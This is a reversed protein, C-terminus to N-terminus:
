MELKTSFVQIACATVLLEDTNINHDIEAFGPRGIFNGQEVIIKEQGHDIFTNQKAAHILGAQMSGTFPDEDVGVLPALGRAHLHSGKKVTENTFLCFVVINESGFNLRIQEYNFKLDGLQRLSKVPIYVYNLERDILIEANKELVDTPIGFSQAFIEGQLRYPEMSVRPTAFTIQSQGNNGRKVFMSLVGVNTEVHISGQEPSGLGFNDLRALEFLAGVTAHGCFQVEDAPTFYRLKIDADVSTPKLVFATESLNMERAIKAM